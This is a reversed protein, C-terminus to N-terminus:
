VSAVEYWAVKMGLRFYLEEWLYQYKVPILIKCFPYLELLPSESLHDGGGLMNEM